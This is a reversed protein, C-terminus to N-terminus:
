IVESSGMYISYFFILFFFSSSIHIFGKNWGEEVAKEYRKAYQKAARYDPAEGRKKSSL